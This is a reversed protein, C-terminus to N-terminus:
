SMMERIAQVFKEVLSHVEPCDRWARLSGHLLGKGLHYHAKVGAQQLRECYAKGEDALPDYEAAAVFTPPLQHWAKTSLPSAAVEQRQSLDPVYLDYYLMLDQATLLPADAYEDHSPFHEVMTLCPYVLAQGCPRVVDDKTMDSLAAALMGGASDGAVVLKNLNLQWQQQQQILWYWSTKIDEIAAPFIHEPALRYDVVFVCANLAKALHATLFEHSDLNGVVFGGGHFYLVVPWGDTPTNGIPKYMRFPINGESIVGDEVLFSGDRPLTYHLCMADYTARISDMDNHAPSYVSNWYILSQMEESLHYKSM